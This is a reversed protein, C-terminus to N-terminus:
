GAPERLMAAGTDPNGDNSQATIGLLQTMLPYVDVNDFPEVQLGRRFSPGAAIFLARMSPLAPDYGHAGANSRGGRDRWRRTSLLVGQDAQCLIAPVRRHRGYRWRAPLERRRWCEFGDHRGLLAAEVAAERGPKPNLGSLEGATVLEFDDPDVHDDFVRVREVAAMGHDSVLLLDVRESLRLQQLGDLLRGIAADLGAVQQDVEASAPGFQHGATDVHEFYLTVFRPPQPEQLWQLVQDVRQEPSPERSFPFWHHPRLGRIEAESGPWFMTATRLGARRATVWLPEADDWWRGDDAGQQGDLRFGGLEADRMRNDVIGHRDPRLGTVLTYHNPFTQSPYSPRMWRARVGAEALAAIRPTLGRGLYDPHFGDLSVLLVSRPPENAPEVAPAAVCGALLLALLAPLWGRATLNDSAM